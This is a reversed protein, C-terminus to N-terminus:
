WFSSAFNKVSSLVSGVAKVTSTLVSKVGSVVTIAGKSVVEGVSSGAIGGLVGGVFGGIVTGVVPVVSGLTAGLTIGYGAGVIGGIASTTVTTMQKLGDKFGIEGSGIKWLIKFNEIGVYAINAIKGIPTNKALAGVFGKRVAITLGTTVATQIGIAKIGVWSSKLWEKINKDLSQNKEGTISNWINRGLIRGGQIMSAIAITKTTQGVISKTIEVKSLKDWKIEVLDKEKKLKESIKKSEQYTIAGKKILEKAKNPNTVGVVKGEKIKKAMEEIAEDYQDSPVELQMPKGNKDIYRYQGEAFAKNVSSKANQCYKTQIEQHNVIRDAGDKANNTGAHIVDNDKVIDELNAMEEAILGHTPHKENYKAYKAFQENVQKLGDDVKQAYNGVSVVNASKAGEEIKRAMWSEPTKGKELHEQLNKRNHNYMEITDVVESSAKEIENENKFIDPHKSFQEKVWEKNTQEKPKQFYLKLNEQIIKAVSKANDKSGFVELSKEEDIKELNEIVEVDIINEKM